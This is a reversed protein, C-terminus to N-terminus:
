KQFESGIGGVQTHNWLNKYFSESAVRSNTGVLHTCVANPTWERGWM